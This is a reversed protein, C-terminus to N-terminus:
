YVKGMTWDSFYIFVLFSYKGCYLMAYREDDEEDGVGPFYLRLQDISTNTVNLDAENLNEINDIVNLNEIDIHSPRVEGPSVEGTPYNRIERTHHNRALRTEKFLAYEFYWLIWFCICLWLISFSIFIVYINIDKEFQQIVSLAKIVPLM